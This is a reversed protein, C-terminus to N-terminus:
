TLPWLACAPGASRFRADDLGAATIRAKWPYLAEFYNSSSYTQDSTVGVDLVMDEPGPGLAAMFAGFMESRVRTAVRISLSDPAAVNYQANPKGTPVVARRM